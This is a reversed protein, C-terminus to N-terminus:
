QRKRSVGEGEKRGGEKKWSNSARELPIVVM